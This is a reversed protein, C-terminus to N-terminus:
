NVMQLRANHRPDVTTLAIDPCMKIGAYWRIGKQILAVPQNNYGETEFAVWWSFLKGYFQVEDPNARFDSRILPFINIRLGSKRHLLYQSSTRQNNHFVPLLQFTAALM